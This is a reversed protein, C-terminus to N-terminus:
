DVWSILVKVGSPGQNVIEFNAGPPKKSWIAQAVAAATGGTVSVCVSHAALSYSTAGYNVATGAPNDVVFVSLVNPVASVAAFLSQVSNLSNGAVSASRRAEFAARSEVLNGLTGATPNSVTNWGAVATYIISLAGIACSIAGQTQNQFQVTVSGTSPITADATSFYM